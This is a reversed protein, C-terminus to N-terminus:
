GKKLSSRWPFSLFLLVPDILFAVGYAFYIWILHGLRSPHTLLYILTEKTTYIGEKTM